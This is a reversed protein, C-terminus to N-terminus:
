MGPTLNACAVIVQLEAASKHVNVFYESGQQMPIRITANGTATGETDPRLPAYANPDGVIPGNSGCRGSHLHWPRVTGGGRTGEAFGISVSTGGASSAAKATGRAGEFGPNARLTGSWNTVTPRATTIEDIPAAACALFLVTSLLSVFTRM